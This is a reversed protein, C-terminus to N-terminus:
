PEEGEPLEGRKASVFALLAHLVFRFSLMAMCVPVVLYLVWQPIAHTAMAGMEKQLIVFRVSAVTLFGCVIAAFLDTVGVAIERPRPPLLHSILDVNIHKRRGTAALAGLMTMWLLSGGLIPEAWLIGTSFFNRLIIQLASLFVMGSVLVALLTQEIVGWADAAKRLRGPIDRGM